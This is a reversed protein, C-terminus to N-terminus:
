LTYRYGSWDDGKERKADSVSAYKGNKKAKDEDFITEDGIIEDREGRERAANERRLFVFMVVNSILGLGIYM